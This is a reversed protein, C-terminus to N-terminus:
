FDRISIKGEANESFERARNYMANFKGVKYAFGVKEFLVKIEEKTRPKRFDLESIGLEAFNSPFM